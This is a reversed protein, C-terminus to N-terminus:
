ETKVVPGGGGGTSIAPDAAPVHVNNTEVTGFLLGLCNSLAHIGEVILM